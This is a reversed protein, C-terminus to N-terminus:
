RKIPCTAKVQDVVSDRVTDQLAIRTAALTLGVYIWFITIAHHFELNFFYHDLFGNALAGILGALLGLWIARLGPHDDLHRRAQWAYGFTWGMLVIFAGLGLLGMNEAITFYVSAVGLYIDIDPTGIFGVGLVPYRSILTLADQYEGLRMQTALDAFQLGEAFREVYAQSWPLVLVLLAVVPILLLLRRYRIAAIFLFAVGLAMM